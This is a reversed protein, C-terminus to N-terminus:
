IFFTFFETRASDLETKMEVRFSEQWYSFHEPMLEKRWLIIVFYIHLIFCHFSFEFSSFYPTCSLFYAALMRSNIMMMMM